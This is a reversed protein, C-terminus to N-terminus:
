QLPLWVIEIFEDEDPCTHGEQLDSAAFLHIKEDTFGPTTYFSAIHEWKEARYGTEEALERRASGLAEEDKEMIGAPIELMLQEAAKRYQRVLLIKKETKVSVIAVAEAHEILERKGESGNPLVVTDVKLRVIRGKFIPESKITREEYNM